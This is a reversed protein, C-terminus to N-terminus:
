VQGGTLELRCKTCHCVFSCRNAIIRQRDEVSLKDLVIDLYNITIEDGQKIPKISQISELGLKSDLTKFTANPDCSHDIFSLYKYIGNGKPRGPDRINM